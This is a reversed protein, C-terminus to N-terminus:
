GQEGCQPEAPQEMVFWRGGRRSAPRSRTAQIREAAVCPGSTRRQAHHGESATVPGHRSDVLNWRDSDSRMNDLSTMTGVELGIRRASAAIGTTADLDVVVMSASQVSGM